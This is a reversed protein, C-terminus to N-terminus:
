QEGNMPSCGRWPWPAPLTSGKQLFLRLLQLAERRSHLRLGRGLTPCGSGGGSSCCGCGRGRRCARWRTRSCCCRHRLRLCLRLCLRHRRGHVSDICAAVIGVRAAGPQAVPESAAAPEVVGAHLLPTVRGTRQASVAELLNCSACVCARLAGRPLHSIERTYDGPAASRHSQVHSPRTITTHCTFLTHKACFTQCIRIPQQGRPSPAPPLAMEPTPGDTSSRRGRVKRRKSIRVSWVCAREFFVNRLALPPPGDTSSRRGRVKIRKSIRLSWM